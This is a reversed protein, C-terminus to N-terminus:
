LYKKDSDVSVEKCIDSLLCEKVIKDKVIKNKDMLEGM